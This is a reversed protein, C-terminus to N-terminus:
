AYKLVELTGARTEAAQLRCLFRDIAIVQEVRVHARESKWGAPSHLKQVMVASVAATGLRETRFRRTFGGQLLRRAM